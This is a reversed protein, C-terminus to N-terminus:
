PHGRRRWLVLAALAAVAAGLTLGVVLRPDFPTTPKVGAVVPATELLDRAWQWPAHESAGEGYGILPTATGDEVDVTFVELWWGLRAEDEVKRVTIVDDGRWGLVGFTGRTGRVTRWEVESNPGTVEAVRVLAPMRGNKLGGVTALRGDGAWMLTPYGDTSAGGGGPRGELRSRQRSVPDVWWIGRDRVLARGDRTAHFLLGPAHDAGWPWLRPSDEDVHWWLIDTYEGHGQQRAPASDGVAHQSFNAVLSEDDMWVIDDGRLGHETPVEHRRTEGTTLDHVVLATVVVSHGGNTQPDGSPAGAGWYAVREGNPSLSVGGAYDPLDLFGYKGGHASIAAVAPKSGWWSGRETDAIAVVPGAVLTGLWPSLDWVTDPISVPEDPRDAASVTVAAPVFGGNLGWATVGGVLAVVCSLAVSTVVRRRRQWRKGRRWLDGAAPVRASEEDNALAALRAEVTPLEM